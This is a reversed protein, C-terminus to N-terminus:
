DSLFRRERQKPRRAEMIGLVALLVALAGITGFYVTPQLGFILKPQSPQSPTQPAALVTLTVDVEHRNQSGDLGDLTITHDGASTTSNTDVRLTVLVTQSVNLYLSSSQFSFSVGSKATGLLYISGAYYNLSTLGITVVKSQGVQVTTSIPNATISFDPLPPEAIVDITHSIFGCAAVSGCTGTVNFSDRFRIFSSQTTFSLTANAEGGVPIMLRSTNLSATTGPPYLLTLNVWGAFGNESKVTITTSNSDTARTRLEGPSAGIAFDPNAPVRVDVLRSHSITGGSTATVRVRYLSATLTSIAKATLVVTIDGSPAIRIQSQSLSVQLLNSTSVATLNITGAFTVSHLAISSTNSSSQFVIIASPNPRITFDPEGYYGDFSLHPVGSSSSSSFSEEQIIIPSYPRSGTVNYTINFLLGSGSTSRTDGFASHVVGPGDTSTCGFGAGNVCRAAEIAIGGTTNATLINPTTSYDSLKTANIGAETVIEIDWDNFQAMNAVKVQVTFMSGLGQFPIDFPNVYVVPTPPSAAAPSVRHIAVSIASPSSTMGSSGIPYATIILLIVAASVLLSKRTLQPQRCSVPNLNREHRQKAQLALVHWNELSL